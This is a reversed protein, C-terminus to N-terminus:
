GHVCGVVKNQGQICHRTTFALRGAAQFRVTISTVISRSAKSLAATMVKCAVYAEGLQWRTSEVLRIQDRLIVSVVATNSTVIAVEVRGILAHGLMRHQLHLTVSCRALNPRWRRCNAADIEYEFSPNVPQAPEEWHTDFVQLIWM